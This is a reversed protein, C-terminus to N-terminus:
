PKLKKKRTITYETLKQNYDSMEKKSKLYANYYRIAQSKDKQWVDYTNAIKFLIDSKTSDLRYAKKLLEVSKKYEKEEIYVNGLQNYIDSLYYPIANRAAFNLYAISEKNENLDKYCLGIFLGTVPDNPKLMLSKELLNLGKEFNKLYYYSIGLNKLIDPTSDGPLLLMEYADIAKEFVRKAYHLDGLKNLLITENPFESLGSELTEVSKDYSNNKQYLAALNIYNNLDSPNQLIVKRYLETALSDHGTRLASFALQKNVFLNSSDRLYHSHLIQFPENYVRINFFAKALRIGNVTNLTDKSYLTKYYPLAQRYNGLSTNIEALESIVITNSSDL